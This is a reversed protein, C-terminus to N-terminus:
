DDDDAAADGRGRGACLINICEPKVVNGYARNGGGDTMGPACPDADSFNCASIGVGGNFRAVNDQILYAVQQGPDATEQFHIGDLGNRAVVNRVANTFSLSAVIGYGANRAIRNDHYFGGDAHPQGDIGSGGNRSITSSQVTLRQDGANQVGDGGNAVITSSDLMAPSAFERYTVGIRTNDAVRADRILTNASTVSVGIDFHRVTGNVLSAGTGALLVGVGTGTGHVVHGNLDLTGSQVILAAGTTDCRLNSSLTTDATITQGCVVALHAAPSAQSSLLAVTAGVALLIVLQRRM